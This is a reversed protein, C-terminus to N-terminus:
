HPALWTNWWDWGVPGAAYPVLKRFDKVWTQRIGVSMSDWLPIISCNDYIAKVCERGIAVEEPGLPTVIYRQVADELVDPRYMAKWYIGTGWQPSTPRQFYRTVDIGYLETFAMPSELIGEPWGNTELDIWKTVSVIEIDAEIGVAKLNAQILPLEDGALHTGCILKTKFGKPYGAEALLAKAKAPDYVRGQFNPDFVPQNGGACQYWANYYGQGVNKAITEKDIAYEVAERVKLDNMPSSPTMVSPVLGISLGGPAVTIEYGGKAKLENAFKTTGFAGMVDGEGNQFALQATTSDAFFLYDIADLNPAGLYYDDNRVFTLHDKDVYEKFKYPGTGVPHWNVYDAGQSNYWEPSIMCFTVYRLNSFWTNMFKVIDVKITYDDIQSYSKINTVASSRGTLYRNMNWMVDEANFSTGDHFKVGHRLKITLSMNDESWEWSEALLGRANSKADFQIFPEIVATM